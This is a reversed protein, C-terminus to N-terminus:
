QGFIASLNIHNFLTSLVVAGGILMWMWKEMRTIRDNLVKHQETSEKRHQEIKEAIKSYTAEMDEQLDKDVKEIRVYLDKINKETEGRREEFMKELREQVKEQFELRSGQVALLQSVTSSVETLKEITIDLREVLTDIQAVDRQLSFVNETLKKVAADSTTM